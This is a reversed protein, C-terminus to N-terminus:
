TSCPAGHVNHTPIFPVGENSALLPQITSTLLHPFGATFWPRFDVSSRTFPSMAACRLACARESHCGACETGLFEFQLLASGRYPPAGDPSFVSIFLYRISVAAATRAVFALALAPLQKLKVM